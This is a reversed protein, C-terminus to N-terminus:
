HEIAVRTFNRCGHKQDFIIKSRCLPCTASEGSIWTLLCTGHFTHSCGRVKTDPTPNLCIPCDEEESVHNIVAEGLVWVARAEACVDKWEFAQM